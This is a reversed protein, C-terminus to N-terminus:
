LGPDADSYCDDNTLPYHFMGWCEDCTDPDVTVGEEPEIYEGCHKCRAM